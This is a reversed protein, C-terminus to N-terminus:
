GADSINMPYRNNININRYNAANNHMSYLNDAYREGNRNFFQEQMEM